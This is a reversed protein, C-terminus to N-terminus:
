AAARSCQETDEDWEVNHVICEGGNQGGCQCRGTEDVPFWCCASVRECPLHIRKGSQTTYPGGPPGYVDTPSDAM